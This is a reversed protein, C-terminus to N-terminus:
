FGTAGPQQTKKSVVNNWLQAKLNQRIQMGGSEGMSLNNSQLNDLENKEEIEFKSSNEFFPKSDLNLLSFM